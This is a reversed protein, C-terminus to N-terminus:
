FILFLIWLGIYIDIMFVYFMLFWVMSREKYEILVLIEYNLSMIVVCVYWKLFWGSIVRCVDKGFGSEIWVRWFYMFCFVLYM